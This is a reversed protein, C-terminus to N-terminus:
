PCTSFASTDQIPQFATGLNNTYQRVAGTQTDTVTLTVRVDTLGAAFVWYGNIGCANLVKIVVEVNSSSFFWLYGTDGTLEVVNASGSLGSSTQYTGQVRFRNNSLCLTTANETCGQSGGTVNIYQEISPFTTAFRGDVAANNVRDCGDNPASGCAGFLQGVVSGDALLVPSGSSGGYTGGQGGVSYLYNALPRNSCVGFTTSTTADSYFQPAPVNYSDPFPHSVRYLKTGAGQAVTTWGLFTRGAPISNLRVFTFDSTTSTALLTSGVQPTPFPPFAANCSSTKYDFYTELTSASAQSDFCHNATLLYPIFSPAPVKDNILGGSCVFGSGSKVYELHAIGTRAAAISPFTATSVCTADILCSPSDNPQPQFTRLGENPVIELLDRIEFSAGDGASKPSAIEVELWVTPGNVSPAYLSGEHLIEKGFGIPTGGAGYVWLTAGEPLKVNTLHLRVRYASEIRVAGSWVITGHESAAVVGRALASAGSKAAVAGDLRVSIPDGIARTFGNKLPLRGADNWERLAALEEPATEAAAGLTAAPAIAAQEALRPAAPYSKVGIADRSFESPASYTQAAAAPFAIALSLLVLLSVMRKM